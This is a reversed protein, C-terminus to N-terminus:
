QDPVPSADRDILVRLGDVNQIRQYASEGFAVLVSSNPNFTQVLGLENLFKIRPCVFVMGTAYKVNEQFYGTSTRANVLVIVDQGTTEYHARCRKMWPAVDSYPPNCFVRGFWPLSLGDHGDQLTYCYTATATVCRGDLKYGCPDLDSIGIKDILWQPTLWTDPM